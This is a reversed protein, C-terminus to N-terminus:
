ELVMRALSLPTVDMQTTAKRTRDIVQVVQNPMLYNVQPLKGFPLTQIWPHALLKKQIEPLLTGGGCLYIQSPFNTVDDFEALSIEVGDLWIPIDKEIAQRVKKSEFDSLGGNTYKIKKQEATVYSLELDQQLRKTFVRGGFAFMKTGVIAGEEVLAIDTTGGGVDIFIGSFKEDRANEVALSLAYPEVVVKIIQLGLADAVEKISELHIKPAFTSFVRYVLNKGKFGRPSDVKIGDIYVSNVATSIEEIQSTKVGTDLAIDEKANAFTQDKIQQVVEDVEDQTIKKEPDEREVNVVIPVGKVLEGAIGLVVGKPIEVEMGLLEEAMYLTKGISLDVLDIVEDLNVILAGRMANQKQPARDYGIIEIGNDGIRFLATKIFETGIDLSLYTKGMEVDVKNQAANRSRKGLGFM